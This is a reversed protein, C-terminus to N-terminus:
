CVYATAFWRVLGVRNGGEARGSCEYKMVPGFVRGAIWLVATTHRARVMDVQLKVGYSTFPNPGFVRSTRLRLQASLVTRNGPIIGGHTCSVFGALLYNHYGDGVAIGNAGDHASSAEGIYQSVHNVLRCTTLAPCFTTIM